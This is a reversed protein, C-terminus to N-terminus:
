LEILVQIDQLGLHLVQEVWCNQVVQALGWATGTLPTHLSQEYGHWVQPVAGDIQIVHTWPNLKTPDVHIVAQGVPAEGTLPTQWHAEPNM